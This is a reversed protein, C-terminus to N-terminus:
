IAYGLSDLDLGTLEQLRKNSERYRDGVLRAVLRDEREGLRRNLSHLPMRGLAGAVKTLVWAVPRFYFTSGVHPITPTRFPGSIRLFQTQICPRRRNRPVACSTMASGSPPLGCALYVKRLFSAPDQQLLEFPVVFVNEAGFADFYKAVLRDYELTQMNFLSKSYKTYRGDCYDSLKVVGFAKVYQAHLSKIMSTQERTCLLIRADPSADRIRLMLDLSDHGGTHIGGALRENSFIPLKGLDHAKSVINSVFEAAQHADYALPSPYVLVEFVERRDARFIRSDADFVSKQLFTSATKHYGIHFVPAAAHQVLEAKNM